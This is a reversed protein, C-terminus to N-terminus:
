LVRSSPSCPLQKFSFYEEFCLFFEETLRFFTLFIKSSPARCPLFNEFFIESCPLFIRFFNQLPARCASFEWLFNRFLIFFATGSPPASLICLFILV